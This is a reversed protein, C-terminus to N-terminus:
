RPMFYIKRASWNRLPQHHRAMSWWHQQHGAKRCTRNHRKASQWGPGLAGFGYNINLDKAVPGNIILLPTVSEDTTQVGYLDFDPDAIAEVAAIIVPLYEPRAGAMVANIAIKEVTAKGKMPEIIGVLETSFRDTGRLMEKVRELTPPIIPLGDTWGRKYFLENVAEFPAEAEIIEIRQHPFQAALPPGSLHQTVMVNKIVDDVFVGPFSDSEGSPNFVWLTQKSGTEASLPRESSSIVAAALLLIVMITKKKGM